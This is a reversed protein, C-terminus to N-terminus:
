KESHEKDLHDVLLMIVLQEILTLMQKHLQNPQKRLQFIETAIVLENLMETAATQQKFKVVQLRSKHFLLVIISVKIIIEM